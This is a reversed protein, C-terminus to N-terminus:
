KSTNKSQAEKKIETEIPLVVKAERKGQDALLCDSKKNEGEEGAFSNFSILAFLFVILLKM